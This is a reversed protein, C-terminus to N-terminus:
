MIRGKKLRGGKAVASMLLELLKTQQDIGKQALQAGYGLRSQELQNALDTRQREVDGIAGSTQAGQIDRMSNILNQFATSQGTNQAQTVAALQELPSKSVGQSELLGALAPTAQVEQTQFGAYPNTQGQLFSKLQDMSSGIQGGATGYMGELKSQLDEYPKNYSGSTLMNQIMRTYKDLSSPGGSGGTPKSLNKITEDYARQQATTNDEPSFAGFGLERETEVQSKIRGLDVGSIPGAGTKYRTRVDPTLWGPDTLKAPKKTKSGKNGVIAM